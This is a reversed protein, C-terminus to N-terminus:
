RRSTKHRTMAMVMPLEQRMIHDGTFHMARTRLPSMQLAPLPWCRWRCSTENWPMAMVMPLELRMMHDVMARMAMTGKSEQVKCTLM